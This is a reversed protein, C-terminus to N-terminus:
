HAKAFQCTFVYINWSLLSSDFSVGSSKLVRAVLNFPPFIHPKLGYWNINLASAFMVQPDPYWSVFVDLRRDLVSAFLDVNPKFFHFLRHFIVQKLM